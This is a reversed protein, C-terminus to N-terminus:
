KVEEIVNTYVYWLYGTVHRYGMDSLLQMYEQVQARYSEEPKGFKFDIVKMETGDSMVRDPRREILEGTTDDYRLITCENFLQWRDSFWDKIIPHEFRKQLMSKVKEFTLQQDFLVGDNELQSLVMPIDETTRISAFIQHLVNGMRVYQRQQAMEDDDTGAVFEKSKNSQRFDVISDYNEIEVMIDQAQREFVNAQTLDAAELQPTPVDLTGYSLTDGQIFQQLLASRGYAKSNYQGYVFLNRKARTFAVYLLNLNDVINQLHELYYDQEFISNTMKYKNFDVPILSLQNYPAVTPRCWILNQKELQWDCFPMIVHDFELGKSKHITILRIGNHESSQISTTSLEDEWYKLFSSIDTINDQLYEAMKDFFACVYASQQELKGLDFLQYLKEAMEMMPMAALTDLYHIFDPPLQSDIDKGRILINPIPKDIENIHKRYNLLLAAKSLQDNPNMIVRMAYVMMNVALSSDLHFAEDSILRVHPVHEIFYDGIEQIISNQRVLIAIKNEQVGAELLEEVKEAMLQLTKDHYSDAKEDILKIEVLGKEDNKWEPILQAVDAYAKHLEEAEEPNNEKLANYEEEKAFTFFDNNFRIINGDSRYNTALSKSDIPQNFQKEINNLLRWNGDRWRYISQKVDGVILNFANEHSMSEKLLVKFNNWQINSTDQFEDIMIHKLAVGIKEFVFPSDSDGILEHLLTSTNSLLFRNHNDNQEKVKEEIHKLLRLQDIHQRVIRASLISKLQKKRIKETENLYDVLQSQALEYAANGAIRDAKRVWDEASAAAKQATKNFVESTGSDMYAGQKLKTFYNIVNNLFDSSEVGREQLISFFEEGRTIIAKEGQSEIEKLQKKFRYFFDKEEFIAHLGAVNEKYSDSFINRGFDKIKGIVNWSKDDQMSETIYEMIWNLVPTQENLEEIMEDVANGEIQYDNLSINLNANLELERALNRLITQFFADITEVRFYNYNHLLLHLAVKARKRIMAEGFGTKAQIQLLYDNRTTGHPYAIAYLQSLIRMKMEATAKNTFTVALIHKFDHPNNILLTMYEVALTFTKGSGASARYVTLSTM